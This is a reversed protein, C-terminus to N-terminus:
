NFSEAEDVLEKARAIKEADLDLNIGKITFSHPPTQGAKVAQTDKGNYTIAVYADRPVLSMTYDLVGVGWIGFKNGKTDRFIHLLRYKKGTADRKNGALKESYCTKTGCFYGGLTQGELFSKGPTVSPISKFANVETLQNLMEPAVEGIGTPLANSQNETQTQRAM